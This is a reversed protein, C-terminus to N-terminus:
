GKMPFGGIRGHCSTMISYPQGEGTLLWRPQSRTLCIFHLIVPHPIADGAEYGEWTWPSIGLDEALQQVGDEGYTERRVRCVRDRFDGHDASRSM